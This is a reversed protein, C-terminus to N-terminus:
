QRGPLRRLHHLYYGIRLNLMGNIAEAIRMRSKVPRARAFVGLALGAGVGSGASGGVAVTLGVVVGLGVGVGVFM